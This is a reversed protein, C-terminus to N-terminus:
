TNLNRGIRLNCFRVGQASHCIIPDLHQYMGTSVDCRGKVLGRPWSIVGVLPNELSSMM